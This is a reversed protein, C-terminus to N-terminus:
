RRRILAQGIVQTGLQVLVEADRFHFIDRRLRHFLM